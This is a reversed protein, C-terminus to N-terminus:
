LMLYLVWSFVSVFFNFFISFFQSFLRFLKSSYLLKKRCSRLKHLLKLCICRADFVLTIYVFLFKFVGNSDLQLIYRPYNHYVTAYTTMLREEIQNCESSVFSKFVEIAVPGKLRCVLGERRWCVTCVVLDVCLVVTGVHLFFYYHTSVIFTNLATLWHRVWPAVFQCLPM